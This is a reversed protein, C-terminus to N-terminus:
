LRSVRFEMLYATLETLVDKELLLLSVPDNRGQIEYLIFEDLKNTDTAKGLRELAPFDKKRTASLGDYTILCNMLAEKEKITEKSQTSIRAMMEEYGPEFDWLAKVNAYALWVASGYEINVENGQGKELRYVPIFDTNDWTYGLSELINGFRSKVGPDHRNFLHALLANEISPITDGLQSQCYALRLRSDTDIYHYDLVQFYWHSASGFDGEEFYTEAMLKLIPVTSPYEELVPKLCKRAKPFNKKKIEINAKKLRKQNKGTIKFPSEQSISIEDATETRFYNGRLQGDLSSIAIPSNESMSDIVFKLESKEM